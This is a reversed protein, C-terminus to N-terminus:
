RRRGREVTGPPRNSIKKAMQSMARPKLEVAAVATAAGAHGDQVVVRMGPRLLRRELELV